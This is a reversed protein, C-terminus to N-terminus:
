RALIGNGCCTELDDACSRPRRSTASEYSLLPEGSRCRGIETTKGIPNESAQQQAFVRVNGPRVSSPWVFISPNYDVQKARSFAIHIANSPPLVGDDCCTRRAGDPPAIHM